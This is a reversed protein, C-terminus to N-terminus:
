LSNIRMDLGRRGRLIRFLERRFATHTLGFIIPFYCTSSKAIIAPITGMLPSVSSPEKVAMMSVVSYPIWAIGFASAMIFGIKAVRREKCMIIHSQKEGILDCSSKRAHGKDLVEMNSKPMGLQMRAVSKNHSKVLQYIKVYAFCIIGMPIIFAFIMLLITYSIDDASRSQWNVSCSIGLGEPGYSSWEFLPLISWFLAYLWCTGIILCKKYFSNM